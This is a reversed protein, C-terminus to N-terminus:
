ATQRRLKESLQSALIYIQFTSALVFSSGGCSACCGAKTMLTKVPNLADGACNGCVIMTVTVERPSVVPRDIFVQPGAHSTSEVAICDSEAHALAPEALLVGM